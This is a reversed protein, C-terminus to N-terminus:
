GMKCSGIELELEDETRELYKKMRHYDILDEVDKTDKRKDEPSRGQPDEKTKRDINKRFEIITDITILGVTILAAAILSEGKPDIWNLPDNLTYNFLNADGGDFRVPDKSLWRGTEPNYYFSNRYLGYIITAITSIIELQKPYLCAM